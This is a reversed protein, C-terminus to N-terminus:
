RAHQEREVLALVGPVDLGHGRAMAAAVADAGILETARARAREVSPAEDAAVAYDHQQSLSDAAGLVACALEVQGLEIAAEALGRSILTVTWPLGVGVALRLGTLQHEFAVAPEGRANATYGLHRHDMATERAMGVRQHIALAEELYRQAVDLSGHLGEAVGLAFLAHARIVPNFPRHAEAVAERGITLARDIDGTRGTLWCLVSRLITASRFRATSGLLQARQMAATAGVLDGLLEAVESWSIEFLAATGADGLQEFAAIGATLHEISRRLDGSVYHGLGHLAHAMAAHWADGSRASLMALEDAIDLVASASDGVAAIHAPMRLM